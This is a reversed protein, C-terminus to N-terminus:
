AATRIGRLGLKAVDADAVYRFGQPPHFGRWKVRLTALSIPKEFEVVDNIQIAVGTELGCFYSDFEKRTTGASVHVLQWLLGLPARIVSTIHFAAVLEMKPATAYILAAGRNIRPARRRLEVRKEGALIADVYRPHISLLLM